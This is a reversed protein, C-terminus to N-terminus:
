AERFEPRRRVSIVDEHDLPRIAHAAYVDIHVDICWCTRFSFVIASSRLTM